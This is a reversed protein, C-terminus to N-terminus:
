SVSELDTLAKEIVKITFDADETTVCMPPKIRFVKFILKM